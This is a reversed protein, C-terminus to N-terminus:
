VAAQSSDQGKDSCNNIISDNAKSVDADREGVETKPGSSLLTSLIAFAADQARKLMGGDFDRMLYKDFLARRDGKKASYYAKYFEENSPWSDHHIDFQRNWNMMYAILPNSDGDDIASKLALSFEGSGKPWNSEKTWDISDFAQHVFKGSKKSMIKLSDIPNYSVIPITALADQYMKSKKKNSDQQEQQVRQEKVKNLQPNRPDFYSNKESKKPEVIKGKIEEIDNIQKEVCFMSLKAEEVAM